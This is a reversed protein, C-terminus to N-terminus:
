RRSEPADSRQRGALGPMCKGLDEEQLERNIAFAAKVGEAAAVIALQVDRSADGAVFLGPIGTEEHRGTRVAGKSNFRCGLSRALESAQHQGTAFFLADCPESEGREFAVARLRGREHSLGTVRGTKVQIGNGEMQLRTEHAIGARGSTFVAV